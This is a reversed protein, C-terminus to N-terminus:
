PIQYEEWFDPREAISVSNGGVEKAKLMQESARRLLFDIKDKERAVTGGASITTSITKEGISIISEEVLTRLREAVIALQEESVNSVIVVFYEDRWRGVIDFPRLTNRMTMAVVRLIKKGVDDGYQEVIQEFDDINIFLVGFRWGYRQVEALRAVLNQEIYKKNPMETIPDYMALQELQGLIQEVIVTPSQDYIIEAVGSLHGDDGFIPVIRVSVPVRYGESHHLYAKKITRIEGPKVPNRLPCISDCVNEGKNNLYVAFTDKCKQGVVRSAEYGCLEEAADNWYLIRGDDAILCVGGFLSNLIERCNVDNINM